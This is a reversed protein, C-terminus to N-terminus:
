NGHTMPQITVIADSSGVRILKMGIATGAHVYFQSGAAYSFGHTSTPDSGDITLMVSGSRVQGWYVRVKADHALGLTGAAAGVTVESGLGVPALRSLDSVNVVNM